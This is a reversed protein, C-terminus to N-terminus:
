GSSVNGREAIRLSVGAGCLRVWEKRIARWLLVWVWMVVVVLVVVAVVVVTGATAEEAVEAGARGRKQPMTRPSNRFTQRRHLM